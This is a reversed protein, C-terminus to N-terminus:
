IIKKAVYQVICIFTFIHIKKLFFTGVLLKMNLGSIQEMFKTKLRIYSKNGMNSTLCLLITFSIMINLKNSLM